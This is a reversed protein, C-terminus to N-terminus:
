DKRFPSLPLLESHKLVGLGVCGVSCICTLSPSRRVCMFMVGQQKCLEQTVGQASNGQPKGRERWGSVPSLPAPKAGCPGQAGAVSSPKETMGAKPVLLCSSDRSVPRM